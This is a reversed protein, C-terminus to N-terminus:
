PWTGSTIADDSIEVDAPVDALSVLARIAQGRNGVPVDRCRRRADRDALLAAFTRVAGNVADALHEVDLAFALPQPQGAVREALPATIERVEATLDFTGGYVVTMRKRRRGRQAAQDVPEPRAAATSSLAPSKPRTRNM